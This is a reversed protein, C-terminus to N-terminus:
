ELAVPGVPVSRANAELVLEGFAAEDVHEPRTDADDLHFARPVRDLEGLEVVALCERVPADRARGLVLRRRVHDHARDVAELDPPGTVCLRLRLERDVLERLIPRLREAEECAELGLEVDIARLQRFAGNM